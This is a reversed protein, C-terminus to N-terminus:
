ITPTLIMAEGILTEWLADIHPATSNVEGTLKQPALGMTARQPTNMYSIRGM